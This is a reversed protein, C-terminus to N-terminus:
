TSYFDFNSYMYGLLAYLYVVKQLQLTSPLITHTFNFYFKKQIAIYRQQAM